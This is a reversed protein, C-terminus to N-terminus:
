GLTKLEKFGKFPAEALADLKIVAHRENIAIADIHVLQLLIIM